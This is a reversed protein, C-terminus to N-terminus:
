AEVNVRRDVRRSDGVWTDANPLVGKLSRRWCREPGVVIGRTRAIDMYNSMPGFSEHWGELYDHMEKTPQCYLLHDFEAQNPLKRNHVHITPFYLLDLNRAPFSFAMPHVDLPDAKRRLLRRIAGVLGPSPTRKLKFVAFGFDHYAPLLRWVKDPIRFRKDLRQFDALCPVFSAQYMGVDHVVLTTDELSLLGGAARPQPFGDNMHQFFDSYAELNIFEVADEAPNPPVPLPLVMALDKSAAYSMAYVLFQRGNAQRAFIRTNSVEEVRQTFLCM